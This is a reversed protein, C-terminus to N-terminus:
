AAVSPDERPQEPQLRSPVPVRVDGLAVEGLRLAVAVAHTRDRVGLVAFVSQLHRRVTARSIGLVRGIAADGHGNAALTLVQRQRPTLATM